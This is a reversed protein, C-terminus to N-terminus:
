EPESVAVPAREAAKAREWLRDLEELTLQEPRCGEAQLWREMHRFRREFKTNTGRLAAEPDLELRRALNVWTFLVDGLEDSLRAMSEGQALAERLEGLEEELKALIPGPRDWDFGVRAARRQLKLARSLAPLALPVGDLASHCGDAAREAAKIREWDVSQEASDVYRVDGFVHPHRRVLKAAISRAVADFDFSGEEEAMRAHFVVQLLLDGLEDRLAARDERAIAEAVEYAEELTYPAISTFNQARDWPCGHEPNRLRAMIELLEEIPSM